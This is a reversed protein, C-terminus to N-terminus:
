VAGGLGLCNTAFKILYAVIEPTTGEAVARKIWSLMLDYASVEGSFYLSLLDDLWQERADVTSGCMPFFYSNM